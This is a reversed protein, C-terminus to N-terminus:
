RMYGTAPRHVRRRTGSGARVSCARKLPRFCSNQVADTELSYAILVQVVPLALLGCWAILTLTEIWQIVPNMM